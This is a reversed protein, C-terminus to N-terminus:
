RLSRREISLYLPGTGLWMLLMMTVWNGHNVLQFELHEGMEVTFDVTRWVLTNHARLRHRGPPLELTLSEDFVLAIRPGDDIRVFVQRQGYDRASTRTLTVRTRLDDEVNDPAAPRREDAPPRTALRVPM